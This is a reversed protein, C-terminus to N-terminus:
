KPEEPKALMEKIGKVVDPPILFVGYDDREAFWGKARLAALEEETPPWSKFGPDPAYLYLADDNM